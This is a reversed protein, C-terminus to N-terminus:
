KSCMYYLKRAAYRPQNSYCSNCLGNAKHKRPQKCRICEFQQGTESYYLAWVVRALTNLDCKLEVGDM